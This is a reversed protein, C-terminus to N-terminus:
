NLIVTTAFPLIYSMVVYGIKLGKFNFYTQEDKM